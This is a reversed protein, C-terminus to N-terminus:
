LEGLHQAIEDWTAGVSRALAMAAWLPSYIPVAEPMREIVGELYGRRWRLEDESLPKAPKDTKRAM